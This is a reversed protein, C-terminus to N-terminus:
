RDLLKDQKDQLCAGGEPSFVHPVIHMFSDIDENLKRASTPMAPDLSNRQPLLSGDVSGVPRADDPPSPTALTRLTHFVSTLKDTGKPRSPCLSVLRMLTGLWM